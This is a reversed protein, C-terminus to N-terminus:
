DDQLKWAVYQQEYCVTAEVETKDLAPAAIYHQQQMLTPKVSFNQRSQSNSAHQLTNGTVSDILSFKAVYHLITKIIM